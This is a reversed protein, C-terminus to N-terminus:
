KLPRLRERGHKEKQLAMGKNVRGCRSCTKPKHSHAKGHGCWPCRSDVTNSGM